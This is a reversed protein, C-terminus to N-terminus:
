SEYFKEKLPPLASIASMKQVEAADSLAVRFPLRRGAEAVNL